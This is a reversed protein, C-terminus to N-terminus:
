ARDKNMEELIKRMGAAPIPKHPYNDRIRGLFDPMAPKARRAQDPVIRAIVTNRRRIQVQEGDEVWGLVEAMRHQLERVTATKM